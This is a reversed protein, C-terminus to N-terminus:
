KRTWRKIFEPVAVRESKNRLWELLSPTDLFNQWVRQESLDAKVSWEQVTCIAQRQVQLFLEERQSREIDNDKYLCKNAEIKRSIEGLSTRSLERAERVFRDAFDVPKWVTKFEDVAWNRFTEMYKGLDNFIISWCHEECCRRKKSMEMVIVIARYQMLLFIAKNEMFESMDEDYDRMHEKLKKTMDYMSTYRLKSAHRTFEDEFNLTLERSDLEESEKPMGTWPEKTSADSECAKGRVGVSASVDLRRKKEVVMSHEEMSVGTDCEMDCVTNIDKEGFNTNGKIANDWFSRDFCHDLIKKAELPIAYRLNHDNRIRKWCTWRSLGSNEVSKDIHWVCMMELIMLYTKREHFNNPEKKYNAKFDEVNDKAEQYSKTIVGALYWHDLDEPVGLVSGLEGDPVELDDDESSSVSWDLLQDEQKDIGDCDMACDSDDGGLTADCNDKEMEVDNNSSLDRAGNCSADLLSTPEVCRVFQIKDEFNENWKNVVSQGFNIWAFTGESPHSNVWDRWYAEMRRRDEETIEALSCIYSGIGWPQLSLDATGVSGGQASNHQVYRQALCKAQGIYIQRHDKRSYLCYVYGTTDAPVDWDKVTFPYVEPVDFVHKNDDVNISILNIMKEVMVTYQNGRTVLEWMKNIAFWKDGVIVTLWPVTTRSMAVVIQEKIWPAFTKSIEVALGLPLTMGLLRDITVAGIHKLSYQLRQAHLERSVPITRQGTTGVTVETWGGDILEQRTPINRESYRITEKSSPSRWVKLGRFSSIHEESPLDLLFAVQSQCFAGDPDNVTFEYLGGSFLLLADPEKLEKNLREAATESATRWGGSGGRPRQTDVSRRLRFVIGEDKLKRSMMNRHFALMEDVKSKRSFACMMGLHIEPSEWSEAFTFIGKDTKSGKEGGALKFFEEKYAPSSLLEGPNMRTLDQFREFKTQNHARVSHKLVVMVFCTTVFSSLLMPLANIPPIQSNDMTGMILVGGFPTSSGREKRLIIDLTSTLEAPIQQLEDILMVDMTRVIHLFKPKRQLRSMAIEATVFPSLTGKNVVPIQFIQHIHVSGGEQARKAMLATFLVNLGLCSCYIISLQGVFTKGTGPKGYVIPNKVCSTRSPDAFKNVQTTVLKIALKQEQYSEESQRAYKEVTENPNWSLPNHRTVAQVDHQEPFGRAAGITEYASRLQSAKTDVWWQMHEKAHKAYIDSMQCAPMDTMLLSNNVIADELVGFAVRLIKQTKNMSNAYYVLQENIYRHMVMLFDQEYETATTSFERVLNAARFCERISGHTMIGVETDYHGLSLMVHLLYKHPNWPLMPSVVPVMIVEKHDDCVFKEMMNTVWPPPNSDPSNAYNILGWVIVLVKDLMAQRPTYDEVDTGELYMDVKKQVLQRLENAVGSREKLAIKRIRVVRGLQDIWLSYPFGKFRLGEGPRHEIEDEMNYPFMLSPAEDSNVQKEDIICYRFYEVPNSFLDFLEPPRLSFISIKDYKAAHGNYNRFTTVQDKTMQQCRPLKSRAKKMPIASTFRDPTIIAGSIELEIRNGPRVEMPETSVDVTPLNTLVEAVGDMIQRIELHAMNRYEDKKRDRKWLQTRQAQGQVIASGAIKTNYLQRRSMMTEGTKINVYAKISNDKDLSAIYKLLYKVTFNSGKGIWQLNQMSRCVAFMENNVPSINCTANPNCPMIHRTPQFYDHLIKDKGFEDTKCFGTKKLINITTEDLNHKIRYHFHRHPNPNSRVSHLKRCVLKLRGDNFHGVPKLCRYDCIHRLFTFAHRKVEEAEDLDRLIGKEIMEHVQEASRFLEICSTSIMENLFEETDANMTEPRIAFILHNHCPNGSKGQYEDRAFLVLLSGLKTVHDKIYHILLKRVINWNSYCHVGYGDDMAAIYEERERDMMNDWSPIHETWRKSERWEFLHSIGPHFRQNVTITYFSNYNIWRQSAALRIVMKSSDVAQALSSYGKERLKMGFASREDVVLGRKIVDRSHCHGTAINALEDFLFTMYNFDPGTTSDASNMRIRAHILLTEFGYPSETSNVLFIPRAGHLSASDHEACSYFHRPFVMAEPQLLPCPHGPSTACFSQVFHRQRSGGVISSNRRRLASGAQNFIVHGNIRDSLPHESVRFVEAGANTTEFGVSLDRNDETLALTPDEPAFTIFDRHHVSEDDSSEDDAGEVMMGLEDDGDSLHVRKDNIRHDDDKNSQRVSKDDVGDVVAGKVVIRRHDDEDRVDFDLDVCEGDSDVYGHHDVPEEDLDDANAEDFHYGFDEHDVGERDEYDLPRGDVEELEDDTWTECEEQSDVGENDEEPDPDVFECAPQFEAEKEEESDSDVVECEPNSPEPPIITTVVPQGDVSSPFSKYCRGCLRAPCQHKVCVWGEQRGTCQLEQIETDGRDTFFHKVNCPRKKDNNSANTPILPFGCCKCVVHPKGGMTEFFKIRSSDVDEKDDRAYVAVYEILAYSGAVFKRHSTALDFMIDPCRVSM